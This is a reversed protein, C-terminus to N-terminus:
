NKKSIIHPNDTAWCVCDHQNLHDNLKFIAEDSWLISKFFSANAAFRTLYWKAFQMRHDPNDKTLAQLLQPQFVHLGIEKMARCVSCNSVDFLQATHHTSLTPTEAFAQAVKNM